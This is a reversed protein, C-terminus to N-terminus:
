NDIYVSRAKWTVTPLNTPENSILLLYLCNNKTSGATNGTWELKLGKTGFNKYWELQKSTRDALTIKIDKLIKFRKRNDWNIFSNVSVSGAGADLIDSVAPITGDNETDLVIMSRLISWSSAANQSVDLKWFFSKLEVENGVRQVADSGNVISVLQSVGGSSDISGSAGIDNRKFEVNVLSAVATAISLAKLGVSLGKEATNLFRMSKNGQKYSRRRRSM